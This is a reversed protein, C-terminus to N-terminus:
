KKHPAKADQPATVVVTPKQPIKKLVPGEELYAMTSPGPEGKLRAMAREAGEDLPKFSISGPCRGDPQMVGFEEEPIDLVTGPPHLRLNDWYGPPLMVQFQAM